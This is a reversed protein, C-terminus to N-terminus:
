DDSVPSGCLRSGEVLFAESVPLNRYLGNQKELLDITVLADLFRRINGPHAGIDRAVDETTGFSTLLNFIRLEIGTMMLRAKVPGMLLQFLKGYAMSTEPLSTM